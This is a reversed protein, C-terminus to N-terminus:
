KISAFLTALQLREVAKAPFRPRTAMCSQSSRSHSLIKKTTAIICRTWDHDTARIFDTGVRCSDPLRGGSTINSRFILHCRM